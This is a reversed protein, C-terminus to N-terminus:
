VTDVFNRETRQFLMLGGLLSLISLSISTVIEPMTVSTTGLFCGRFSEVIPAVPNAYILWRYSDPLRSAPYVIPSAYMWLQLIFPVMHALDRYKATFSSFVLGFGLSLAATQIILLPVALFIGPLNPQFKAGTCKFFIVFGILSALQVSLALLNSVVTAMPVILRPFYVKEFIYSYAGFTNSTATINQSFYAWITLGGLYFLMPPLGDTSLGGVRHFIFTFVVTTLLPQIFFWLPGLITQKYKVVFDKTVLIFFLDRYQILTQIDPLALWKRGPHIHVEYLTDSAHEM